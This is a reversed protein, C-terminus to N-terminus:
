CSLKRSLESSSRLPDEQHLKSKRTFFPEVSVSRQQNASGSLYKSTKTEQIEFLKDPSNQSKVQAVKARDSVINMIKDVKRRRKRAEGDREERKERGRHHYSPKRIHPLMSSRLKDVDKEVNKQGPQKM